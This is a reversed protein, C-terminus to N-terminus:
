KLGFGIARRAFLDEIKPDTLLRDFEVGDGRAAAATLQEFAIRGEDPAGTHLRLYGCNTLRQQRSRREAEAAQAVTLNLRM